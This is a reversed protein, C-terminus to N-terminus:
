PVAISIVNSHDSERGGDYSTIWFYVTGHYNKNITVTVDKPDASFESETVYGIYYRADYYLREDTFSVPDASSGYFFYYLGSNTGTDPDIAGATSFNLTIEGPGTVSATNILPPTPKQAGKIKSLDNFYNIDVPEETGCSFFAILVMSVLFMLRRSDSIMRSAM